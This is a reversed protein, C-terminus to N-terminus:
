PPAWGRGIWIEVAVEPAPACRAPWPATAPSLPEENLGTPEVGARSLDLYTFTGDVCSTPAAVPAGPPPAEICRRAAREGSCWRFLPLGAGCAGPRQGGGGVDCQQAIQRRAAGARRRLRPRLLPWQQWMLIYRAPSFGLEQDPGRSPPLDPEDKSAPQAARSTPRV